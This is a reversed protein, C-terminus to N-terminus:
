GDEEEGWYDRVSKKDMEKEYWEWYEEDTNFQPKM